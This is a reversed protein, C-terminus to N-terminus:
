YAWATIRLHDGANWPTGTAMVDTFNEITCTGTTGGTQRSTAVTASQTTIDQAECVYGHAATLFFTLTGNAATPATGILIDFACAASATVTPSTGFGTGSTAVPVSAGCLPQSNVQLATTSNSTAGTVTTGTVAAATGGGIAGPASFTAGNLSSANLNPVNTTSTVVLPATGTAVTSTMQGTVSISAGSYTKNSLTQTGALDALTDTAAPITITFNSAGANASTFTTTGTSSGLLALDSNNITQLGSWGNAGNMLPVNAGSTGTNKGAATGFATGGNFSGCNVALTNTTTCDGSLNGNTITLAASFMALENAAPSGTTGVSGSGTGCPSGTGSLLGASNATICQNSGTITNIEVGASFILPGLTAQDMVASWLASKNCVGGVFTTGYFVLNNDSQQILHPECNHTTIGGISYGTQMYFNEAIWQDQTAFSGNNLAGVDVGNVDINHTSLNTNYQSVTVTSTADLISLGISMFPANYQTIKINTCGAVSAGIGTGAVDTAMYLEDFVDQNCANTVGTQNLILRAGAQSGGLALMVGHVAAGNTITIAPGDTEWYALTVDHINRLLSGTTNNLEQVYAVQGFDDTLDTGASPGLIMAQGSNFAWGTINVFQNYTNAAKTGNAVLCTGGFGNCYYVITPQKDNLVALCNDSSQGGGICSVQVTGGTGNEVTLAAGIGATPILYGPSALVVGKLGAENVVLPSSLTVAPVDMVLTVGSAAKAYFATLAASQDLGNSVVGNQSAYIVNGGTQGIIKGAVSVNGPYSALANGNVDFSYNWQVPQPTQAEARDYTVGLMAAAGLGITVAWRALIRRVSIMAFQVM